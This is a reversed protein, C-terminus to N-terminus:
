RVRGRDGPPRAVETEAAPFAALHAALLDITAASVPVIRESQPTKPAALYVSNGAAPSTILQQRVQITRRLFDVSGAELGFVEAPRLGTRAALRPVAAYRAPLFGAVAEVAAPEPIWAKRLPQAPLRIDECPTRGILRDRVASKFVSAVYGYVVAITSPALAGSLDKVILQVHAPRVATLPLDGLVPNVYLRMARETLAGTTERHVQMGRWQAAYDSFKTRGAAADM